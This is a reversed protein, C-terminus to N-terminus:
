SDMGSSFMSSPVIFLLATSLKCKMLVFHLLLLITISMANHKGGQWNTQVESLENVDGQIVM